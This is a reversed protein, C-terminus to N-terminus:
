RHLCHALTFLRHQSVCLLLLIRGCDGRQVETQVVRGQVVTQLTVARRRVVVIHHAVGGWRHLRRSRGQLFPSVAELGKSQEGSNQSKDRSQLLTQSSCVHSERKVNKSFVSQFLDHIQEVSAELKWPTQQAVFPIRGVTSEKGAKLRLSVNISSTREVNM